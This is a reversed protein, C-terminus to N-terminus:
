AVLHLKDLMGSLQDAPVPRSFYFGQLANVGLDRLFEAQEATEVGEAITSFGLKKALDVIAQIITESGNVKGIDAVFSKDIKLADLPLDRLVSLSSYGTGFDDMHVGVGYHKLLRLNERTVQINQIITSETIEINIFNPPVQFREIASILRLGFGPDRCEIPSINLSVPVSLRKRDGLQRLWGCAEALLRSGLPTIAGSEEALPIFLDPPIVKDETDRWRALAEVGILMRTRADVIPQYHLYFGNKEIADRMRRKLARREKVAADMNADFFNVAGRKSVKSKYMAMDAHSLLGEADSEDMPSVSIGASIQLDVRVDGIETISALMAVVKEAIEMADNASKLNPALIAFEDGGLRGCSDTTRLNRRLTAAIAVLLDDGLKHGFLDNVEKFRDLDFVIVACAFGSRRAQALADETREFFARRNLLGTLPDTQALRLLEPQLEHKELFDGAGNKLAETAVALDSVGTLVIIPLNPASRRVERLGDLGNTDPLGLDLLVIDVGAEPETQPQKLRDLGEALSAAGILGIRLRADGAGHRLAIEALRRDGPNDEIMLVNLHGKAADREIASAISVVQQAKGADPSRGHQRNMHRMM